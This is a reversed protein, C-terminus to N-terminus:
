WGRTSRARSRLAAYPGPAPTTVLLCGDALAELQAIGYDERRPACVFVRARRVLARYEAVPLVGVARVGEFSRLDLGALRLQEQSAGAVLLEGGAGAALEGRVRRWADLM